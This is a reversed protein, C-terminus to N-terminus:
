IYLPAYFLINEQHSFIIDHLVYVEVCGIYLISRFKGQSRVVLKSVITIKEPIIAQGLKSPILRRQQNQLCTTKFQFKM